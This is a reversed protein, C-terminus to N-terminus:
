EAARTGKSLRVVLDAEDERGIQMTLTWKLKGRGPLTSCAGWAMASDLPGPYGTCPEFGGVLYPEGELPWGGQILWVGVYPIEELSFSYALYEETEPDHVACWGETLGATNLKDHTNAEVSRVVSLDVQTGEADRTVPWDHLKGMEGLRGHDSFETRVRTATPLLMRMGPRMALAPHASWLCRFDFPALSTLEYRLDLSGGGRTTVWKDLRYAFRVSHVWLHVGNGLIEHDWPLAWVEGHDPVVTGRWPYEPYFVENITPFCEQYGGIDYEPLQAGYPPVRVAGGPDQWMFERNTAKLRLSTMKGGLSPLIVCRLESDEIALGETGRHYAVGVHTM